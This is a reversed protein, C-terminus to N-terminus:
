GPAKGAAFRQDIYWRPYYTLVHGSTYVLGDAEMQAHIPTRAARAIVVDNGDTMQLVHVAQGRVYVAYPSEYDALRVQARSCSETLCRDDGYSVAEPLPYSAIVTGDMAILDLRGSRLLLVTKTPDHPKVAVVTGEDPAIRATRQATAGDASFLELAGTRGLVALTSPADFAVLAPRPDPSRVLTFPPSFVVGDAVYAGDGLVIASEGGLRREIRRPAAYGDVMAFGPKPRSTAFWLETATRGRRTRISRAWLLGQPTLSLGFWRSGCAPGRTDVAEQLINWLGVRPCAIGALYALNHLPSTKGSSASIQGVRVGIGTRYYEVRLPEPRPGTYGLDQASLFGQDKRYARIVPTIRSYAATSGAANRATVRVRIRSGEDDRESLTYTRGRAGRIDVCGRAAAQFHQRVRGASLSRYYIAVEDIGGRLSPGQGDLGGLLVPRSSEDVYGAAPRSGVLEGDLYLRMEGSKTDRSPELETRYTALLHSWRGAPVRVPARLRRVRAPAESYGHGEDNDVSERLRLQFVLGGLEDVLLGVVLASRSEEARRAIIPMTQGVTEPRIWAELTLDRGFLGNQGEVVVAPGTGRFVVAANTEGNGLRQLPSPQRFGVGSPFRGDNGYWVDHLKPGTRENM